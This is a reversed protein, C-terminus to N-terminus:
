AHAREREILMCLDPLATESSSAAIGDDFTTRTMRTLVNGCPMEIALRAGREWALRMTDYWRVQRAMNGALDASIRRGDFLPRAASSSLYVTRPAHVTVQAFAEALAAAPEDLLACHSPVAVDLRECRQAGQELALAVLEQMATDSGAIVMQTEANLNALFVPTAARNVRAILAELPRQRLGVIATMGYGSPYAREMLHGRLAVLRVADAYRLAGATVAAPYAGISLGAVIDPECGCASLVRAQAVGAILLCLQVAITSRLSAADDLSRVDYGLTDSAEELARCAEVHDPLTALMGSKQSGQGPFTFVTSM